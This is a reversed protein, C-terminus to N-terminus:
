SLKPSASKYALRMHIEDTAKWAFPFTSNIFAGASDTFSVSGSVADGIGMAGWWRSGSQLFAGQGFPRMCDTAAPIPLGFSAAAITGSSLIFKALVIVDYGVHKLWSQQSSISFGSPVLNTSVYPALLLNVQQAVPQGFTEASVMTQPQPITIAM